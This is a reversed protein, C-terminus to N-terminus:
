KLCLSTLGNSFGVASFSLMLTLVSFDDAVILSSNGLPM